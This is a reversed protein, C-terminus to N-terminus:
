YPTRELFNYIVIPTPLKKLEHYSLGVKHQVNIEIKWFNIDLNQHSLKHIIQEHELLTIRKINSYQKSIYNKIENAEEKKSTEILPLEYLNQWIDKKTRQQYLVKQNQDIILLYHFYRNTKKTKKTKVPLNAINNTSLAYCSNQLPCIACNPNQPICQLAGFEMIAQNFQAPQNPCIVESAMEFFSKKTKSLSIDLDLGFYRAIVRYVNGDIVPVCENYSFSAIAAATYEGIGKLKQLDQYNNPFLGNNQETLYKATTHLNRARSYYGLGQWLKLVEEEDAKALDQIKPFQKTFALYYPLGQVVRTQQLIIESLWILYPDTTRRWPLDRKNHQYWAIIINSFNM